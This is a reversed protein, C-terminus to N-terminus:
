GVGNQDNLQAQLEIAIELLYHNVTGMSAIALGVYELSSEGRGLYHLARARLYNATGQAFVFATTPDKAGFMSYAYKSRDGECVRVALYITREPDIALNAEAQTLTLEIWELGFGNDGAHQAGIAALDRADEANGFRLEYQAQLLWFQVFMHFDTRSSWEGIESLLTEAPKKNGLRIESLALQANQRQVIMEASLKKASEQAKRIIKRAEKYKGMNNLLWAHRVSDYERPPKEINDPIDKIREYIKIAEQPSSLGLAVALRSDCEKDKRMWEPNSSDCEINSFEIRARIATDAAEAVRGRILQTGSLNLLLTTRSNFTTDGPSLEPRALGTQLLDIADELRGENKFFLSGDLYLRYILSHGPRSSNRDLLTSIAKAGISHEGRRTGINPYGGMRNRYIEYATDFDESQVAHHILEILSDMESSAKPTYGPIPAQLIKLARSHVNKPNLIGSYFYDRVIPHLDFFTESSSAFEGEFILGIRTLKKLAEDTRHRSLTQTANGGAKSVLPIMDQIHGNTARERFVSLARIAQICDPPLNDSHWKLLRAMDGQQSMGPRAIRDRRRADGGFEDSIIGGLLSLSYAHYGYEQAVTKFPGYKVGKSQLLEVAEPEEMLNLNEEFVFNGESAPIERVLMRSTIIVKVHGCRGAAVAQLLSRLAPNRLSGVYSKPDQSPEQVRELGDLIILVKEEHSRLEEAAFLPNDFHDAESPKEKSRVYQFLTRFFSDLDTNQYFAWVFVGSIENSSESSSFTGLDQLLKVLTASKGCGGLGHLTFVGSQDTDIFHKLERRLRQRGVFGEVATSLDGVILPQRRVPTSSAGSLTDESEKPGRKKESQPFARINEEPGGIPKQDWFELMLQEKREKVAQTEGGPQGKLRAEEKALFSALNNAIEVRVHERAPGGRLARNFRIQGLGTPRCADHLNARTFGLRESLDVLPQFHARWKPDIETQGPEKGMDAKQGSNDM